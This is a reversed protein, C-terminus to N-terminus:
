FLFLKVSEKELIKIFINKSFTCIRKFSYEKLILEFVQLSLLTLDRTSGFLYNSPLSRLFCAVM